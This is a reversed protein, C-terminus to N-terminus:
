TRRYVGLYLYMRICVGIRMYTRIYVDMYAYTYTCVWILMNYTCVWILINYTCVWIHMYVCINVCYYSFETQLVARYM